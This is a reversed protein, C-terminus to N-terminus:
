EAPRLVDHDSLYEETAHVPGFEAIYSNLIDCAENYDEIVLDDPINITAKHTEPDYEEITIENVARAHRDELWLKHDTGEGYYYAHQPM